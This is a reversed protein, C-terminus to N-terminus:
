FLNVNNFPFSMGGMGNMNNMSNMNNLNRSLNKFSELTSLIFPNSSLLNLDLGNMFTNNTQNTNMMGPKFLEGITLANLMQTGFNASNKVAFDKM